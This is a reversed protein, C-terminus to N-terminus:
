EPHRKRLRQLYRLGWTADVKSAGIFQTLLQEERRQAEREDAGAIHAMEHWVTCALAYDWISEGKLARQFIPGQRRLYVTREGMTAFGEFNEIAHRLAPTSRDADIVVTAEPRDPLLRLVRDVVRDCERCLRATFVTHPTITPRTADAIAWPLKEVTRILARRDERSAYNRWNGDLKREQNYWTLMEAARILRDASLGFHRLILVAIGDCRLELVQIAHHDGRQLASQYETWVYEHGLEHAILAAFEENNVLRLANASVLIVTREHLGVFAQAVDIIKIPILGLRGDYELVERALSMKRLDAKGPRIEGQTPLAAIIQTRQRVDIPAPRVRTLFDDITPPNQHQFYELAISLSDTSAKGEGGLVPVVLTMVCAFLAALRQGM